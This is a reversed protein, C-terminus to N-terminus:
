QYSQVLAVLDSKVQANDITDEIAQIIQDAQFKKGCICTQLDSFNDNIISDTNIYAKQVVGDEVLMDVEIIGWSFRHEYGINAQPSQGYVWDRSLYVEVYKMIEPNDQIDQQSYTQCFVQSRGQKYEAIFAEELQQITLDEKVDKLNLVRSKVSDVGKSKLKLKSATLYKGLAGMNVDVLMTGHHCFVDKRQVFANGSVKKGQVHIDNRGNFVAEIGLRGLTKSVYAFNKEVGDEEVPGIITFNLNGLDHYVAGGGSKRRVLVVGDQGIKQVDCEKYPNQNRGIVITNDNQWLYLTDEGKDVLYEELGLNYAPHHCTSIIIQSM